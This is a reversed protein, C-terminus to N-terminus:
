PTECFLEKGCFPCFRVMEKSAHWVSMSFRCHPCIHENMFAGSQSLYAELLKDLRIWQTGDEDEITEGTLYSFDARLTYKAANLELELARGRKVFLRFRPVEVEVLGDDFQCVPMYM